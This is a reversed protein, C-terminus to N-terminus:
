NVLWYRSGDEERDIFGYEILYRRVTVYDSFASQIVANAEPETYTRGPEFRRAIERLVIWRNKEKLKFTKLLGDRGHPFYKDLVQENEEETVNYRDDLMRASKHPQVFIPAHQDKEKLLEMMALFLKAQREKEKLSFRHNRITSASSIGTEEMIERDSKGQHFLRLLHSQHETLGTLKKDLQTLYEFVSGYAERIHHQIFREADYLRNGVPYIVGQEAIFGDLLCLYYGNEQIYGQKLEDASANWFRDNIDM